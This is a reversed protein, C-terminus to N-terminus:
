VTIRFALGDIGNYQRKLLFTLICAVCYNDLQFFVNGCPIQIKIIAQNKKLFSSTEMDIYKWETNYKTINVFIAKSIPWCDVGKGGGQKSLMKKWFFALKWFIKCIKSYESCAVYVLKIRTYIHQTNIYGKALFTNPSSGTLM